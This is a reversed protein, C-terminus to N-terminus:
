VTAPQGDFLPLLAAYEPENANAKIAHFLSEIDKQCDHERLAAILEPLMAWCKGYCPMRRWLGSLIFEGPAHGWSWSLTDPRKMKGALILASGIANKGVIRWPLSHGRDYTVSM